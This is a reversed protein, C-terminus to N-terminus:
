RVCEGECELLGVGNGMNRAGEWKEMLTAADADGGSAGGGGGGHGRISCLGIIEVESVGM